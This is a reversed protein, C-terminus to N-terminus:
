GRIRILLGEARERYAPDRDVTSELYTVADDFRNDAYANVGLAYLTIAEGAGRDLATQYYFDAPSYDQREYSILGLYYYPVHNDDRLRLAQVFAREAEDADGANYMEVGHSVWGRFSRRGDVYGLFDEELQAPVAWRFGEQWVAAANEDRSYEPRLASISDWLIRNIERKEANALFSVMGWAQPYFSDINRRAGDLDMTLIEDMPILERDSRGAVMEKLTDLWALNERYIATGFQPDYHVEEFYVAFGERLWLPPHPIFARFFQIFSQHILSPDLSEDDVFYGVLESKALDDYHLYVFGERTENVLRRMYADYRSRTAFVRVRLPADLQEVPYRFQQNYLALLAEMRDLTETAHDRSIESIVHYHPGSAEYQSSQGFVPLTLVLLVLIGTIRRALRNM